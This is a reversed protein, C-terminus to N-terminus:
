KKVSKIRHGGKVWRLRDYEIRCSGTCYVQQYSAKKYTKKCIPCICDCGVKIEKNLAKAAEIEKFLSTPKRINRRSWNHSPQKSREHPEYDNRAEDVEQYYGSIDSLM